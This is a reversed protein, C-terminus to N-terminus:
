RKALFVLGALIGGGLVIPIGYTIAIRSAMGDRASAMRAEAIALREGVISLGTRRQAAAAGSRAMRATEADYALLTVRQEFEESTLEARAEEWAVVLDTKETEVFGKRGERAAVIFALAVTEAQDWTKSSAMMDALELKEVETLPRNQREKLLEAAEDELQSNGVAEIIWSVIALLAAVIAAVLLIIETIGFDGLQTVEGRMAQDVIRDQAALKLGERWSDERKVGRRQLKIVEKAITRPTFQIREEVAWDIWDEDLGLAELNKRAQTKAPRAGSYTLLKKILKDFASARSSISKIRFLEKTADSAIRGIQDQFLLNFIERGSAGRRIQDIRSRAISRSVGAEVLQNELAKYDQDTAAM